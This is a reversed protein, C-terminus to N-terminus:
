YRTVKPAAQAGIGSKLLSARDCNGQKQGKFNMYGRMAVLVPTSAVTALAVCIAFFSGLKTM